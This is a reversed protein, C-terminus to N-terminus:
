VIYMELFKRSIHKIKNKDAFPISKSGKVAIAKLKKSGMVAGMGNRGNAHNLENIICSYRVLNEGGIGIQAIRISNNGNEKRIMKQTEGTDLGWIHKADKIQIDDDNIYLYVPVPSKGEIILGNKFLVFCESPCTSAM